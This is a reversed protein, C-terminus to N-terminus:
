ELPVIPPSGGFRVHAYNTADPVVGTAAPQTECSKASKSVATKVQHESKGDVKEKKM